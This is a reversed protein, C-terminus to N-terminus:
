SSQSLGWKDLYCIQYGSNLKVNLSFRKTEEYFFFSDYQYSIILVNEEALTFSAFDCNLNYHELYDYFDKYSLGVEEKIM